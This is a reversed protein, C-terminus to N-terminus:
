VQFLQKEKQGRHVRAYYSSVDFFLPAGCAFLNTDQDCLTFFFLVLSAPLHFTSSNGRAPIQYGTSKLQSEFCGLSSLFKKCSEELKM